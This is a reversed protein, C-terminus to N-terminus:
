VGIIRRYATAYIVGVLAFFLPSILVPNTGAAIFTVLLSLILYRGLVKDEIRRLLINALVFLTMISIIFWFLGYKRITNLHDIEINSVIRGEGLSYFEHGLGFGFLLNVVNEQWLAILSNLHMIRVLGTESEGLFVREIDIAIPSYLVALLILIIFTVFYSSRSNRRDIFVAIIMTIICLATGTKSFSFICALLFFLASFPKRYYISLIFGSPFFLTSKFYINAFLSEDGLSRYGFNGGAVEDMINVLSILVEFNLLLGLALINVVAAVSLLAKYYLVVLNEDRYQYLFIILVFGFITSSFQSSALSIDNNAILSGFLLFLPYLCLLVFGLLWSRPIVFSQQLLFLLFAFALFYFRLGFDGGMDLSLGALILFPPVRRNFLKITSM